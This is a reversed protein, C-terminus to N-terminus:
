RRLQTGFDRFAADGDRLRSEVYHRAGVFDQM